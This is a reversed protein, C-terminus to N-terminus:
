NVEMDTNSQINAALRVTARKYLIKPLIYTKILSSYLFQVVTISVAYLFNNFNDNSVNGFLLLVVSCIVPIFYVIAAITYFVFWKFKNQRINFRMEFRDLNRFRICIKDVLMVFGCWLALVILWLVVEVVLDFSDLVNFVVLHSLAISEYVLLSILFMWVVGITTSVLICHKALFNNKNRLIYYMTLLWLSNTTIPVFPTLLNNYQRDSTVNSDRYFLIYFQLFCITLVALKKGFFHKSIAKNVTYMEYPVFWFVVFSALFPSFIYGGLAGLVVVLVLSVVSFLIGGYFLFRLIYRNPVISNSMCCYYLM